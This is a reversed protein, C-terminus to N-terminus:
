DFLKKDRDLRELFDTIKGAHLFQLAGAQKRAAHRRIEGNRLRRGVGICQGLVIIGRLFPKRWTPHRSAVSDIAHSELYVSGTPERVAVAWHDSGRMMVGEVVAQGGYLHTAPPPQGM